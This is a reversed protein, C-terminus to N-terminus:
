NNYKYTATLLIRCRDVKNETAIDHNPKGSTGAIQVYGPTRTILQPFFFLNNIIAYEMTTYAQRVKFVGNLGM